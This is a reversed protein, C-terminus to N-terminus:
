LSARSAFISSISVLFSWIFAMTLTYLANPPPQFYGRLIVLSFVGWFYYYKQPTNKHLQRFFNDRNLLNLYLVCFRTKMIITM